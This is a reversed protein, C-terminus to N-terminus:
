TLEEKCAYSCPLRFQGKFLFAYPNHPHHGNAGIGHVEGSAANGAAAAM